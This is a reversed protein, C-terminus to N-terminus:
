PIGEAMIAALDPLYLPQESLHNATETNVVRFLERPGPTANLKRARAVRFADSRLMVAVQVQESPPGDGLCGTAHENHVVNHSCACLNGIYFSGPRQPLSM